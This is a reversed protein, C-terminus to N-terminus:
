VFVFRQCGVSVSYTLQKRFSRANGPMQLLVFDFVVNRPHGSTLKEVVQLSCIELFLPALVVFLWTRALLEQREEIQQQGFPPRQPDQLEARRRRLGLAIELRAEVFRQIVIPCKQTILALPIQFQRIVVEVNARISSRSLVLEVVTGVRLQDTFQGLLLKGAD